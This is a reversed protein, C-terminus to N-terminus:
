RGNWSFPHRAMAVDHCAVGVDHLYASFRNSCAPYHLAALFPVTGLKSLGTTTTCGRLCFYIFWGNNLVNFLLVGAGLILSYSIGLIIARRWDTIAVSLAIPLFIIMATQKTLFALAFIGGALATARSSKYCALMFIALLTLFLYLSDVRAIDLWAGGARYTAAFLGAASIAATVDGTYRKVWLAIIALCGLSAAFSVLRLPLFGIGTLTAIGASVYYYLPTYILPTYSMSPRDYLPQGMLIRNVKDVSLGEHWELEFPHQMRASALAVYLAIYFIAGAFLLYRSLRWFQIVQSQALYM